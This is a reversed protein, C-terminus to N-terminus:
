KESAESVGNRETAQGLYNGAANNAGDLHDQCRRKAANHERQEGPLLQRYQAAGPRDHNEGTQQKASALM